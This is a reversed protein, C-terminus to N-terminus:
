KLDSQFIISASHLILFYHEQRSSIVQYSKNSKFCNTLAQCLTIEQLRSKLLAKVSQNLSKDKSTTNYKPNTYAPM